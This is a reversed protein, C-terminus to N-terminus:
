VDVGIHIDIPRDGTSPRGPSLIRTIPQGETDHLARAAKLELAADIFLQRTSPSSQVGKLVTLSKTDLVAEYSGSQYRTQAADMVQQRNLAIAALVLTEAQDLLAINASELELTLHQMLKLKTFVATISYLVQVETVSDLHARTPRLQLEFQRPNVVDWRVEDDRVPLRDGGDLVLRVRRPGPYPDQTLHYPGEPQAEDFPLRDTRDDPRPEGATADLSEPDVQFQTAHLALQVPPSSGGVLNPLSERLLQTLVTELNGLM